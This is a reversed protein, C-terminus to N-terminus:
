EGRLAVLRRVARLAGGLQLELEPLLALAGQVDGGLIAGHVALAATSLARAGITAANGKLSHAARAAGDLGGGDLGARIEELREGATDAFMALLDGLLAEDGDLNVLVSRTDLVVDPLGDGGECAGAPVPAAAEAGGASFDRELLEGLAKYGVPKPMFANMGARRCREQYGSHVHATMAVVPVQAADPGAEGCRIRRTAELGDMDPMELDMLVIDYRESALRQLAGRGDTAVTLTHGLRALFVEMVRTNGQNDEVLLVRLPGRRAPRAPQREARGLPVALSFVCGEGPRSRVDLAGGLRAVLIRSLALGIGLGGRGRSLGAAAGGFPEFATRMAEEGMGPGTDRVEARLEFRAGAAAGDADACRACLGVSGSDTFRVANHVLNHLVLRLKDADGVARAPLGPDLTVALELGKDRAEAEHEAVVERLLRGLDFAGARVVSQQAEAQAFEVLKDVEALLLRGSRLIERACERGRAADGDGDVAIEAMGLIANLPTRLEHSVRALLETKASSAAEAASRALSLEDLHERQQVALALMTALWSVVEADAEGYRGKGTNALAIQGVLRDGILAPHSLFTEIPIHGAPVGRSRADGSPDNSLLPSKSELVWGWLGCRKEFIVAKDPVKCADWVDRTMTPCSLQGTVQDVFGVYGFRSGTLRKAAELVLEAIDEVAPVDLLRSGLEALVASKERQGAAQGPGGDDPGTKTGAHEDM